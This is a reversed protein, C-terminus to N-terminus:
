EVVLKLNEGRETRIMYVGNELDSINYEKVGSAFAIQQGLTNCLTFTVYRNFRILQGAAPNPSIVTVPLVDPKSIGSGLDVNISDPTPITFTMWAPDADHIRGYSEDSSMSPYCVSDSFSSNPKLLSLCAPSTSLAFSAHLVGQNTQGDMWIVKHSAPPIKCSDNGYEFHFGSGITINDILEWGGIDVTDNNPNYLEVWQDFENYNDSYTSTNITQVENILINDATYIWNTADPTSTSFLIWSPSADYSRGYSIDSALTGFSISDIITTGDPKVLAIFDGTSNFKFNTHLIGQETDDDTWVVLFGHPPIKTSDNNAAFQFRTPLILNDTLYYGALDLTDSNPNYIEVWDDYEGANDAVATTNSSMVENIVPNIVAVYNPDIDFEATINMNTVLDILISQNPDNMPLWQVFRYGPKAIATLPVENGDFYQGSWPYTYTTTRTTNGDLFLSNVKVNGKLSDSVDITLTNYGGLNFNSVIDDRCFQPRLNVWWKMSDTQATWNYNTQWRDQYETLYPFFEAKMDDVRNQAIQPLFETNMYDAFLNIFDTKFEDNVIFANFMDSPGYGRNSTLVQSFMDYWPNLYFATSNDMDWQVWKWKSGPIRARWKAENQDPWDARSFYISHLYHLMFTEVDLQSKVYAYNSPVNLNNSNIYAALANWNQADGELVTNGAGDIIDFGPNDKDILYHSQLYSGNRNRERLEQFGWYEGDIFVIVPRYAEVDLKSKLMFSECYADRFLGRKRDSGWARIKIKDFKDIYKAPGNTGEFLRYEIKSEGYDGSANVNIGKQNSSPSSQGNISIKFNSNFACTGNPLFMEINGPRDWDWYYNANFTNPVYTIGPVYIGTTDNFLNKPDSVISIVALNGYRGFINPDVFYSHTLIPGPLYNNKFARARVITAKFVESVPPYWDPLWNHVRYCTRILSYVNPDGTRSSVPIPGSYVPSNVDPDSGDLTYHITVSPDIHTLTISQSSTYFGGPVSFQPADTIVGSLVQASNNSAAPSPVSLYVLNASGDPSRGYSQDAPLYVASLNDIIVNGPDSLYITEGDSDIAFNTHLNSGTRNKKDCWVKIFGGASINKSPFIWKPISDVNDSLGYGLLNVTSSGANHIEIWDSYEGDEDQIVSQNNSMLENIYLQGYAKNIFFICILLLTKKNM